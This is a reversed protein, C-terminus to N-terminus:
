SVGLHWRLLRAKEAGIVPEAADILRGMRDRTSAPPVGYATAAGRQLWSALDSRAQVGLADDAMLGLDAEIRTWTDRGILLRFAAHRVHAPHDTGLLEWLRDTRVLDPRGRLTATVARVVVPAPDTLMDAIQGLSGGLRRVARVAEARVRPRDHRLHDAVLEADDSTGCEGLGAVAGRLAVGDGSALMARYLETADRGARRMAWQATSRVLASRDSLFPEAAEPRGLQVLGDLAEVRVRAFRAALLRELTDRRGDRVAAGVVAEICQRQCVIDQETLAARVLADSDAHGSELWLRYGLRRVEHDGSARAADLTEDSRTRLAETVAAAAYDGRRWARLALAVGAAQVLGATDAVALAEDFATRADDRVPRVWDTTRILLVALLRQERRMLPTHVARQRLHGDYVCATLLLALPDSGARAPDTIRLWQDDATAWWPWQRLRGDLRLWTGPRLTALTRLAEDPSTGTMALRVLAQALDDTSRGADAQAALVTLDDPEGRPQDARSRWFWKIGM